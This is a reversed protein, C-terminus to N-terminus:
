LVTATMAKCPILCASTRSPSLQATMLRPKIPCNVQKISRAEPILTAPM